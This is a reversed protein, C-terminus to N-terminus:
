NNDYKTGTAKNIFNTDFDNPFFGLSDARLIESKNIYGNVYIDKNVEEKSIIVYGIGEIFKYEKFKGVYKEGNTRTFVGKGNGVGDVFDGEYKDGNSWTYVGKGTRKGNIWDGSYEDRNKYIFIGKGTYNRVSYDNLEILTTSFISFSITVWFLIKRM